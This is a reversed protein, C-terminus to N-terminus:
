AFAFLKLVRLSLIRIMSKIYFELPLIYRHQNRFEAFDLRLPNDGLWVCPLDKLAKPGIRGLVSGAVRVV